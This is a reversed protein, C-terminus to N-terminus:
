NLSYFSTEKTVYLGEVCYRIRVPNRSPVVRAIQNLPYWEQVFPVFVSVEIEHKLPDICHRRDTGGAAIYFCWYIFDPNSGYLQQVTAGYPVMPHYLVFFGNGLDKSEYTM